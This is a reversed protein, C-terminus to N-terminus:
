CARCKEIRLCDFSIFQFDLSSSVGNTLPIAKLNQKNQFLNIKMLKVNEFIGMTTKDAHTILRKEANSLTYNVNALQKEPSWFQPSKYDISHWVAGSAIWLDRLESHTKRADHYGFETGCSDCINWDSPPEDLEYYGCVPCLYKM